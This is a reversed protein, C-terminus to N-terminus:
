EYEDANVNPALVKAPRLVASYFSGFFCCGLM